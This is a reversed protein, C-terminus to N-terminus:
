RRFPESVPDARQAFWRGRHNITSQFWSRPQRQETVLKRYRSLNIVLNFGFNTLWRSQRPWWQLDSCMCPQLAMSDHDFVGGVCESKCFFGHSKCSIYRWSSPVLDSGEGICKTTVWINRKQVADKGNAIYRKRKESLRYNEPQWSCESLHNFSRKEVFVCEVSTPPVNDSFTKDPRLTSRFTAREEQGIAACVSSNGTAWNTKALSANPQNSKLSNM